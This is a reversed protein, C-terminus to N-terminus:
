SPRCHKRPSCPLAQTAKVQATGLPQSQMGVAQGGSAAGQGKVPAAQQGPQQEEGPRALQQWSNENEREDTQREGMKRRKGFTVKVVPSLAHWWRHARSMFRQARSITEVHKSCCSKCWHLLSQFNTQLPFLWLLNIPHLTLLISWSGIIIWPFLINRM